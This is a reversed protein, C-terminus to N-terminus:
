NSGRVPRMGRGKGKEERKLDMLIEIVENRDIQLHNNFHDAVIPRIGQDSAAIAFYSQMDPNM